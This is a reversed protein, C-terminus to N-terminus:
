QQHRTPRSLRHQTDLSPPLSHRAYQIDASDNPRLRLFLKGQALCTSASPPSPLTVCPHPQFTNTSSSLSRLFTHANLPSPASSRVSSCVPRPCALQRIPTHALSHLTHASPHAILCIEFSRASLWGSGSLSLPRSHPHPNPIPSACDPLVACCM